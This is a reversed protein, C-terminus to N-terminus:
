SGVIMKVWEGVETGSKIAVESQEYLCRITRILKEPVMMNNLAAWLGQHWVSDFAKQFDVFCHFIIGQTEMMEEAIL